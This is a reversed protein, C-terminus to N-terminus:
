PFGLIYQLTIEGDILSGESSTVETPQLNSLVM